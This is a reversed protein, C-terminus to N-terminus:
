LGQDTQMSSNKNLRKYLAEDVLEPLQIKLRVVLKEALAAEIERFTDAILQEVLDFCGAVIETRLTMLEEASIQPTCSNEEATIEQRGVAETLTPLENRNM